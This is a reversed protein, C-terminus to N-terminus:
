NWFESVIDREEREYDLAAQFGFSVSPTHVGYPTIKGTHPNLTHRVGEPASQGNRNKLLQTYFDTRVEDREQKTLKRDLRPVYAGLVADMPAHGGYRGSDLNLPESGSSGDSKGVQHLVIVSCDNDKAISRIKQSARDVQESKGMLGSGGILELYDIVVLRIPQGLMDSGKKIDASMDKITLESSDNCLLLPFKTITEFFQGPKRGNALESELEWTPVGTTIATLRGVVQRWSMELSFFMTPVTPNNAIANLAVWTKGVSSVAMVMMCEAKALGGRTNDDFFPLGLGIRPQPDNAWDVFSQVGQQVNHIGTM